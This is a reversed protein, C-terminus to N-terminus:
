LLRRLWCESKSVVGVHEPGLGDKVLQYERQGAAAFAFTHVSGDPERGCGLSTWHYANRRAWM